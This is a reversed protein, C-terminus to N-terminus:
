TSCGGGGGARRGESFWHCSVATPKFASGCCFHPVPQQRPLLQYLESGQTLVYAGLPGHSSLHTSGLLPTPAAQEAGQLEREDLYALITGKNPETPLMPQIQLYDTQRGCSATLECRHVLKMKVTM